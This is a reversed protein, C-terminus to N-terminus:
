GMGAMLKVDGGGMGGLVYFILFVGFGIVAGLASHGLGSWGYQYSHVALGSGLAAVVLWNSITRSRLDEVAAAVGAATVLWFRADFGEVM